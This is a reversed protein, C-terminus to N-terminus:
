PTRVVMLVASCLRKPPECLKEADNVAERLQANFNEKSSRKFSDRKDATFNGAEKKIEIKRQASYSKVYADIKGISTFDM